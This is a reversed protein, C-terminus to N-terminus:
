KEDRLTCSITARANAMFAEKPQYALLMDSSYKQYFLDLMEEESLNGDNMGVIFDRCATNVAFARDFFGNADEGGVIGKHPLSLYKHPIRRCKVISSITDAYSTLFCPYISGDPMLVGLTENLILLELEPVYFSLSDRTHGPTEVAEVTLGGLDISDGEKVVIDAKFVDDDYAADLEVGNVEAAVLSLERIVRRPTDKLLM